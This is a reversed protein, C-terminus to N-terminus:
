WYNFSGKHKVQVTAIVGCIFALMKFIGKHSGGGCQHKVTTWKRMSSKTGEWKLCLSKQLGIPPWHKCKDRNNNKLNQRNEVHSLDHCQYVDCWGSIDVFMIHYFPAFASIWRHSRLLMTLHWKYLLRGSIDRPPYYRNIHDFFTIKMHVSQM